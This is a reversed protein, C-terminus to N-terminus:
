GIVYFVSFNPILKRVNQRPMEKKVGFAAQATGAWRGTHYKAALVRQLMRYLLDINMMGWLVSCGTAAQYM